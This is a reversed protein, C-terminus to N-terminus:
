QLSTFLTKLNMSNSSVNDTLLEGILEAIQDGAFNYVLSFVVVCALFQFTCVKTVLWSVFKRFGEFEVYLFVVAGVSLLIMGFNEMSNKRRLHLIKMINKKCLLLCVLYPMGFYQHGSFRTKNFENCLLLM